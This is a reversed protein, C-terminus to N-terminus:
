PLREWSGTPLKTLRSDARASRPSSSDNQKWGIRIQTAPFTSDAGDSPAPKKEKASTLRGSTRTKGANDSSRADAVSESGIGMNKKAM